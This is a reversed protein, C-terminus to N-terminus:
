HCHGTYETLFQLCDAAPKLAIAAHHTGLKYQSLQVRSISWDRGGRWLFQKPAVTLM